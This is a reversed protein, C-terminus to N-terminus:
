KGRFPNVFNRHPGESIEVIGALGGRANYRLSYVIMDGNLKKIVDILFKPNMQFEVEPGDYEMEIFDEVTGKDTRTSLKVEGQKPYFSLTAPSSILNSMATIRELSALTEDKKVSCTTPQDTPLVTEYKPFKAASLKTRYCINDKIITLSTHDRAYAEKEHKGGKFISMIRTVSEPSIVMNGEYGGPDLQTNEYLSLRLGDTAVLYQADVCLGKMSDREAHMCYSVAKLGKLLEELDLPNYQVSSFDEIPTMHEPGLTWLNFMSLGYKVCLPIANSEVTNDYVLLVPTDKMHFTDVLKKLDLCSVGFYCDDGNFDVMPVSVMMSDNRSRGYFVLKGDKFVIRVSSAGPISKASKSTTVSIKDLADALDKQNVKVYM